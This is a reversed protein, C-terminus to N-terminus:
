NAEASMQYAKKMLQKVLIEDKGSSKYKDLLLSNRINEIHKHTRPIEYEYEIKWRKIIEPDPINQNHRIRVGKSFTEWFLEELEKILEEEKKGSLLDLCLRTTDDWELYTDYLEFFAKDPFEPLLKDLVPELTEKKSIFGTETRNVIDIYEQFISNFKYPANIEYSKKKVAAGYGPKLGFQQWLSRITSDIKNKIEDLIEYKKRPNLPPVIFTDNIVYFKSFERPLVSNLHNIEIYFGYKYWYGPLGIDVEQNKLRTDLLNMLKFFHAKKMVPKREQNFTKLLSDIAYELLFNPKTVM